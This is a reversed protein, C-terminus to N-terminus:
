AIIVSVGKDELEKKMNDPISDTVLTELRECACKVFSARGLKSNDALLIVHKARRMAQVKTFAENTDTTSMGDEETFGFTGMFALDVVIEQLVAASLPGVLTRSIARLEGGTLILRHGSEMLTAAAMLSNTVITLGKRADLQQALKLVTSGGDLFITDNDKILSLAKAAIRQKGEANQGEKDEFLPEIVGESKYAAGGHVRALLGREHMSQLDRRVTAESIALSESLSSVSMVDNSKLLQLIRQEREATLM